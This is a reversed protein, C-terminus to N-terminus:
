FGHLVDCAVRFGIFPNTRWPETEFRTYKCGLGTFRWDAGRVVRLVGASPGQPDDKPSRNYYDWAFWDSCWEFVNGRMDYLGFANPPYSGGKEIPLGSTSNGRVNFGSAKAAVATPCAFPAASGARCAYEWEAETPLRYRRGAAQEDRLASLQRCFRAADTWSVQEVPFQRFDQDVIEAKGGGGPSHWSPNVGMVREYQGQTVELVGICFDKTIRVRHPPVDPPVGTEPDPRDQGQDPLGMTFEGVPIRALKMGISNAFPQIPSQPNPILSEDREQREERRQPAIASELPTERSERSHIAHWLNMDVQDPVFRTSGDMMLVHVGGPHMSRATAQGPTAYACCPMGQRILSAEGFARHLQNGGIIDDARPQRCNPGTDDGILGHGWTVSAGAEGLAWVGRVDDRSIGARVEDIAALNSLGNQFEGVSFCKNFGAVGSGWVREIMRQGSGSFSRLFGNPLPEWPFGPYPRVDSVGGNIAYNGRAFSCEPGELPLARYLNDPRHFTDSPCTMFPLETTRAPANVESTVPETVNFAAALQEQGLHPLLLVAWNATSNQIFYSAATSTRTKLEVATKAPGRIAAPPLMGNAQHYTQLAIGLQRLNGACQRRRASERADLLGMALVMMAAATVATVVLLEVFTWGNRHSDYM